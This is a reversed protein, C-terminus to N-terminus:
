VDVGLEALANEYDAISAEDIDDESQEFAPPLEVLEWELTDAKLKYAYGEPADTPKHCLIDEVDNANADGGNPTTATAIIYGDVIVLKNAM